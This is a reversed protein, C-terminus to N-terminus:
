RRELAEPRLGFGIVYGDKTGVYIRGEGSAAVSAAEQWRSAVGSVPTRHVSASQIIMGGSPRVRSGEAGVTTLRGDSPIFM